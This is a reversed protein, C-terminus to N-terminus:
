EPHGHPVEREEVLGLEEAVRALLLRTEPSVPVLPLRVRDEILGMMALVTKVPVPNTEVFNAQVLPLLRFHRERALEFDSAMAADVMERVMGPAQNSVVSVVGDAGLAMMTLTIWDEGSLVVFGEPRADLISMVQHLDGSAEKIAVIGPVEALRLTTEATINSGTRSPVNYIVVPLGGEEAIARFHEFFGAQMPRNYYPGVSLAGDAGLAAARKTRAVAKATSNSGAGAIVPIRGGVREVVLAIVREWEVPELTVGEGTTGCPLIMDIGAALQFDVLRALAGEDVSGDAAFPTVLATGTGQFRHKLM